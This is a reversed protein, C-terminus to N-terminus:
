NEVSIRNGVKYIEVLREGERGTLTEKDKWTSCINHLPTLGDSDALNVPFGHELLLKVIKTQEKRCAHHLRLLLHYSWIRYTRLAAM